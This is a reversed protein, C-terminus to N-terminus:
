AAFVGEEAVYRKRALDMMRRTFFISFVVVVIGFVFSGWAAAGLNGSRTNIDIFRMLGNSVQLSRTGYISPWYEGIMLGGWTSNITSSIGAILYPFTSPIIVRRMKSFFGMNLNKMLEQYESPMAKVGMWFSYFLYYFTSIFALSIVFFESTLPGFIAHFDPYLAVYVFPFYVPAPFATLVQILPVGVSEARSNVAMYYGLTISIVFTVAIVVAVRSYDYLLGVIIQPTLAFLKNWEGVSVSMVLLASSYMIIALIVLGISALIYRPYNIGSREREFMENKMSPNRRRYYKSLRTFPTAATASIKRTTNKFSFRGRRIVPTDTDVTYKSVAYKSYRRLFYIIIVIVLALLVFALLIGNTNGAAILAQMETGIGFTQYSTVGITFVESVTIYFFGDSISPFLNAVIRPISFPIYINRMIAFFGLRYNEGVEVMERPMTKFAQYEAIWINWVVATFVLFDAALEVGLPGGIRTIFLILVVPFFSIVPVSEFVESISVFINEFIKGKIAGYALFWGTVISLLVLGLVRGATALVALFIILDENM